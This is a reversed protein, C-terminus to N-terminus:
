RILVIHDPRTYTLKGKLVGKYKFKGYYSKGTSFDYWTYEGTAIVTVNGTTRSTLSTTHKSIVFSQEIISVNQDCSNSLITNLDMKFDPESIAIYSIKDSSEFLGSGTGLPADTTYNHGDTEFSASTINVYKSCNSISVENHWVGDIKIDAHHNLPRAFASCAFIMMFAAIIMKMTTRRNHSYMIGDKIKFAVGLVFFGWRENSPTKQRLQCELTDRGDVM